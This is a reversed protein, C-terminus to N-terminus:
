ISIISTNRYKIYDEITYEKDEAYVYYTKQGNLDTKSYIREVECKIIESRNDLDIIGYKGDKYVVLGNKNQTTVNEIILKYDNTVDSFGLKDYEINIVINEDKDLIGYKNNLKVQYLLPYNKIISIEDYKFEFKVKGDKSLIGYKNNSLAIFEQTYENFIMDDYRAGLVTDYNADIVGWKQGDFAVIMGYYFTKMNQYKNNVNTYKGTKALETTFYNTLYNPTSIDMQMGTDSIKTILNFSKGLDELSIYLKDNHKKIVDVITYNIKGINHELDIKYIQNTDVEFGVVENNNQMFCKNRNEENSGYEGNFYKYGINKAILELSIYRKGTSDKLLLGEKLEVEVNDVLLIEKEVKKNGLASIVIILFFLM